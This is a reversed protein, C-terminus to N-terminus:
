GVHNTERVRTEGTVLVWAYVDALEYDWGPQQCWAGMCVHVDALSARMWSLLQFSLKILPCSLGHPDPVPYPWVLTSVM